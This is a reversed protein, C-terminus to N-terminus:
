DVEGALAPIAKHHDTSQEFAYAARYLLGENFHKSILQMGVPMGEVFGAPISIAPLGALNVPITYVDGMYMALPDSKEGM